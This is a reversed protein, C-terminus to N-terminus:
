FGYALMQETSFRALYEALNGYTNSPLYPMNPVPDNPVFKHVKKRYLELYERLTENEATFFVASRAQCLAYATKFQAVTTFAGLSKVLKDSIKENWRENYAHDVAQAAMIVKEDFIMYENQFVLTIPRELDRANFCLQANQEQVTFM